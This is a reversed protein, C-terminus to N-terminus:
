SIVAFGALTSELSPFNGRNDSILCSSFVTIWVHFLLLTIYFWAFLIENKMGHSYPNPEVNWSTQFLNYIVKGNHQLDLTIFSPILAVRLIDQVIWSLLYLIMESLGSM